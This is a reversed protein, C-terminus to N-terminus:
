LYSNDEILRFSQDNSQDRKSSKSFPMIFDPKKALFPSDPHSLKRQNVSKLLSKTRANQIQGRMGFGKKSMFDDLGQTEYNNMNDMRKAFPQSQKKM